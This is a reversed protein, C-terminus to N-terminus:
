NVVKMQPILFQSIQIVIIANIKLNSNNSPIDLASSFEPCASLCQFGDINEEFCYNAWHGSYCADSILWPMQIELNRQKNIIGLIDYISVTGDHFCWDGSDKEGHGTYYLIPKFDNCKCFDFFQKIHNLAVDKRLYLDKITNYLKSGVIDEMHALDKTVGSLYDSNHMLPKDHGDDRSSCANRPPDTAGCILLWRHKQIFPKKRNVWRHVQLINLDSASGALM